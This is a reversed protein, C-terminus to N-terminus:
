LFHFILTNLRNVMQYNPRPLPLVLYIHITFFILSKFIFFKSLLILSRKSWIEAWSKAKEFKSNYKKNYIEEVYKDNYFTVGLATFTNQVFDTCFKDTIDELLSTNYRARGLPICSTKSVNTKCRSHVGIESLKQVIADICKIM